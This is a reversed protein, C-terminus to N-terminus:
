TGVEEFSKSTLLTGQYGSAHVVVAKLGLQLALVYEDAGIMSMSKIEYGEGLYEFLHKVGDRESV